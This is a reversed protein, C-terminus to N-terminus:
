PVHRVDRLNAWVAAVVMAATEVRLIHEGLRVLQAGAGTLHELEPPSLGGEPGIVVALRGELQGETQLYEGLKPVAPDPHAALLRRAASSRCAEHLSAAIRLQPLWARRCQKCAEIAVRRLREIHQAGVHVVSREFDCLCITTVGLETCKEVLWDLRGGKCAAVVLTLSRPPPPVQTVADVRVRRPTPLRGGRRRKPEPGITEPQVTGAAVQGHGDFLTLKDGSRLRLSHGAHRAQDDDLEVLGPRLAPCYFWAAHM